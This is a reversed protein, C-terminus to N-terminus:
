AEEAGLYEEIAAIFQEAQDCLANAEAISVEHDYDYTASLRTDFAERLLRHLEVPLDGTKAFERGFASIVASHKSYSQGRQALAASAAHFMAYYAEAAAQNALEEQALV